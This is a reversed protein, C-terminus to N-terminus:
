VEKGGTFKIAKFPVAHLKEGVGLAGGSGVIAYRCQGGGLDIALNNISGVKEGGANEVKMGIITSARMLLVNQASRDNQSNKPPQSQAMVTSAAIALAAPGLTWAHKRKM